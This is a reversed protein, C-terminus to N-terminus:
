EEGAVEIEVARRNKKKKLPFRSMATSGPDGAPSSGCPPCLFIFIFSYPSFHLHYCKASHLKWTFPKQLTKHKIKKKNLEHQPFIVRTRQHAQPKEAV